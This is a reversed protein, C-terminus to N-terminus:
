KQKPREFIMFSMWDNPGGTSFGVVRWGDLANKQMEANMDEWSGMFSKYEFM